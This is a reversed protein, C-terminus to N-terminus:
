SLVLTIPPVTLSTEVLWSISSTSDCKMQCVQLCHREAHERIRYWAKKAIEYRDRAQQLGAKLRAVEEEARKVDAKAMAVATSEVAEGNGCM